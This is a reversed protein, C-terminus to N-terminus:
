KDTQKKRLLFRVAIVIGGLSLVCLVIWLTPNSDDGTKPNGPTPTKENVASFELTVGNETIDFSFEVKGLTYGEPAASEILKFGKGYPLGEILLEGNKDTVYVGMQVGDPGYLDFVAGALKTGDAKDTKVLKVNGRILKNEITLEALQEHAVTVTQEASLVYGTTLESAIEKVTYEGILLGDLYIAGNEDTEFEGSYDAGTLTKGTVTFKVGQIPTDKGEFTKIVKLSGRMLRNDIALEEVDNAAVTVTIEPSLVYGATLESDLEKVTYRGILLNELLIEGKEDTKAEITVTTGAVTQGTITFPVGVIPTERGEFTKVVRMSGRLLRNEIAIGDNMAIEVVATDQGVYEFSFDYETEDLAYAPGTQLEKVYFSGFPLDSTFAAKGDAGPTLTEILSGAPIAIEGDATLIDERAFLGFVVSAYPGYGEPADEPLECYKSLSVAAKQRENFVGVQAFVLPTTQNEYILSFDHETADLVM